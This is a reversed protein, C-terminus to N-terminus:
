DFDSPRSLALRVAAQIITPLGLKKRANDRHFAATRISIGLIRSIEWASKGRAAWKLCEFERPSLAVGDVVGQDILKRSAHVHFFIAILELASEYQDILRLFQPRREDSAFTLAASLGHRDHIPITFGSRIGHQTAEDMMQRQRTSLELDGSDADWVFTEQGRRAQLVVPDIEVYRLQVYHSTWLDPYTSILEPRRDARLSACLYAFSPLDLSSATEALVNRLDDTDLSETLNEAFTHLVKQM